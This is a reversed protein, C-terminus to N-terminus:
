ILAESSYERDILRHQLRLSESVRGPSIFCGLGAPSHRIQAFDGGTVGFVGFEMSRLENSCVKWIQSCVVVKM